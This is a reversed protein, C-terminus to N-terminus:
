SDFTWSKPNLINSNQFWKPNKFAQDPFFVSDRVGKIKRAVGFISHVSRWQSIDFHGKLFSDLVKPKLPRKQVHSM